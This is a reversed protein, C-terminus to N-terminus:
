ITASFNAILRLTISSAPPILTIPIRSSRAEVNEDTWLLDDLDSWLRIRVSLEDAEPVSVSASFFFRRAEDNEMEFRNLMDVYFM